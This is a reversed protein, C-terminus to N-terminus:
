SLSLVIASSELFNSSIENVITNSDVNITRLYIVDNVIEFIKWINNEVSVVAAFRGTEPSYTVDPSLTMTDWNFVGLQSVAFSVQGYVFYTKNGLQISTLITAFNKSAFNYTTESGTTKNIKKFATSSNNTISDFFGLYTSDEYVINFASASLPGDNTITNTITYDTLDSKNITIFEFTRVTGIRTHLWFAITNDNDYYLSNFLTRATRLYDPLVISDVFTGDVNYKYITYLTDLNGSGQTLYVFGGKKDIGLFSKNGINSSFFTNNIKIDGSLLM